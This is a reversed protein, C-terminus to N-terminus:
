RQYFLFFYVIMLLLYDIVFGKWEHCKICFKEKRGDVERHTEEYKNYRKTM